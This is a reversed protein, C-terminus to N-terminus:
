RAWEVRAPDAHAVAVQRLEGEAEVVSVRCWDALRPTVLRAVAALDGGRGDFLRASGRRPSFANPPGGRRDTVDEHFLVVEDVRGTDDQGRVHGDPGVGGAPSGVGTQFTRLRRCNWLGGAFVTSPRSSASPKSLQPDLRLNYDALHDARPM